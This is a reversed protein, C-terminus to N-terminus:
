KFDYPDVTIRMEFSINDRELINRIPFDITLYSSSEEFSEKLELLDDRTQAYGTLDLSYNDKNIVIKSFSINNGTKLMIDELLKSWNIANEQISLIYDMKKEVKEVEDDVGQYTEKVLFSGAKSEEIYSILVLHSLSFLIGIMLVFFVLLLFINKIHKYYSLLKIEKKYKEPLINLNLM